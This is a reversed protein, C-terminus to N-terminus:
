GGSRAKQERHVLWRVVQAMTREEREAEAQLWAYDEDTLRVMIQRPLRREASDM